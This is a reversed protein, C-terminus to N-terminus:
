AHVALRDRLCYCAGGSGLAALRPVTSRELGRRLTDLSIRGAVRRLGLDENAPPGSSSPQEQEAFAALVQAATPLHPAEGPPGEWAGCAARWCARLRRLAQEATRVHAALVAASVRGRGGRSADIDPQLPDVCSHEINRPEHLAWLYSAAKNTYM